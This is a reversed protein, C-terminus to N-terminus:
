LRLAFACDRGLSRSHCCSSSCDRSGKWYMLMLELRWYFSSQSKKADTRLQWSCCIGYCKHGANLNAGRELLEKVLYKRKSYDLAESLAEDSFHASMELLKDAAELNGGLIAQHVPYKTTSGRGNINAGLELMFKFVAADHSQITGKLLTGYAGGPADMDAGRDLLLKMISIDGRV